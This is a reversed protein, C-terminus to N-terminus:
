GLARFVDPVVLVTSRSFGCMQLSMENKIYKILPDLKTAPTAVTHRLFHDAGVEHADQLARKRLLDRDAHCKVRADAVDGAPVTNASRCVKHMQHM